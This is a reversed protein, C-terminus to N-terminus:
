TSSSKTPIRFCILSFSFGSTVSLIAEVDLSTQKLPGLPSKFLNNWKFGFTFAYLSSKDGYCSYYVDCRSVNRLYMRFIVYIHRVVLLFHISQVNYLAYLLLVTLTTM